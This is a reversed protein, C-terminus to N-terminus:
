WFNSDSTIKGNQLPMTETVDPWKMEKKEYDILIKIIISTESSM